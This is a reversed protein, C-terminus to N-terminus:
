KPIGLKDMLDYLTPRSVGLDSAAKTLNNENRMIAKLILEKELMERADKLPMCEKKDAAEGLELDERTIIKGEAMIVARKIRNELERVNGPWSYHEIAEIAQSSFGKVKKRNESGYRDLFAKALVIVDGNRERLPPLAIEVVKLRYYLDDRFTAQKMAEGLDRNTAALVRADIEIQERGGVREITKEQLFRLLKVQLTLPLDGVEDLFLTGGEAMEFRGKRQAHAGTFTGKEHGFLESEILNEPIASCNILILPNSARISLRHIARAVLEKGTGSEGTILVPVDTTSVKRITSFVDQMPPSTGIMNEFTSGSLRHRLEHLEKELQAVSFARRLVVKLEDLQVPKYFFDYAGKEVARLANEKESRGTIIIVKTHSYNDLIYDLVSFGEEVGAPNPPLGLDLTVVAPQEKNIMAVASQKDEALYVDYDASLAWKMQTCLDEEDDVILLKQKRM